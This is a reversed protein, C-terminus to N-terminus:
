MPFAVRRMSARPAVMTGPKVEFSIDRLVPQGEAYGFWVNEFRVAGPGDRLPRANRRVPVTPRASLVEHLRRASVIAGNYRDAMGAVQQIQQFSREAARLDGGALGLDADVVGVLTLNPFHYGKTVLQTGIVIDIAGAEMQAVFDAAGTQAQADGLLQDLQM